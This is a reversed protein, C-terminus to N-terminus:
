GKSINRMNVNTQTGFPSPIEAPAIDSLLYIKVGKVSNIWNPGLGPSSDRTDLPVTFNEGYFTFLRYDDVDPDTVSTQPTWPTTSTGTNGPVNVIRSALIEVSDWRGSDTPHNYYASYAQSAKQFNFQGTSTGTTDAYDIYMKIQQNARDLDFRVLETVGDNNEDVRIDLFTGDNGAFLVPVASLNMDEAPRILRALQTLVERGETQAEFGDEAQKDMQYGIDLLSYSAIIVFVMVTSVVMGEVLSYGKQDKLNELLRM